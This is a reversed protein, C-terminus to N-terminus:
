CCSLWQEAINLVVAQWDKCGSPRGLSFPIDLAVMKRISSIVSSFCDCSLSTVRKFFVELFTPIYM